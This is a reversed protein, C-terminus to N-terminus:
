IICILDLHAFTAKQLLYFFDDSSDGTHLLM